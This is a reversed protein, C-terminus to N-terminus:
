PFILVPRTERILTPDTKDKV